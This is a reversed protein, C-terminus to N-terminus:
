EVSRRIEPWAELLASDDIVLVRDGVRSIRGQGDKQGLVIECVSSPADVLLTGWILGLDTTRDRLALAVLPRLPQVYRELERESLKREGQGKQGWWVLKSSNDDGIECLMGANGVQFRFRVVPGNRVVRRWHEVTRIGKGTWGEILAAWADLSRPGLKSEILDHPGHRYADGQIAEFLGVVILNKTADDGDCLGNEIVDFCRFVWPHKCGSQVARMLEHGLAAVDVYYVGSAHIADRRATWRTRCLCLQDMFERPTM